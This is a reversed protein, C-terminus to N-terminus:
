CQALGDDKDEVISKKRGCGTQRDEFPTEILEAIEACEHTYWVCRCVCECVSWMVHSMQLVPGRRASGHRRHPGIITIVVATIASRLTTVALFNQV